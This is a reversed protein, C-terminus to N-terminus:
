NGYEGRRYGGPPIPPPPPPPPPPPEGNPLRARPRPSDLLNPGSLFVIFSFQLINNNLYM